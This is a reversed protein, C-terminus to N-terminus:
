SNPRRRNNIPTLNQIQHNIPQNIYQPQAFNPNSNFNGTNGNSNDYNPIFLRNNSEISIENAV